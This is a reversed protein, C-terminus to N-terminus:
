ASKLMDMMMPISPDELFGGFSATRDKATIRQTKQFQVTRTIAEGRADAYMYGVVDFFGPIETKLKGALQPYLTVAGTTDDKEKLSLATMLTNMELDKFARVIKRMHTRVIGWERKDPVDPDRTKGRAQAERVMQRMVDRMDLDALESLSDIICTKYYGNNNVRLDNHIEVIEDISRVQIVDLDKRKRLTVTGGEIDLFIIPKTLAHDQATGALYTKGVGPEGYVLFNLWEIKDPTTVKDPFPGKNNSPSM